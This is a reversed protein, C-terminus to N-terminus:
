IIEEERRIEKESLNKELLRTKIKKIFFFTVDKSSFGVRNENNKEHLLDDLIERKM